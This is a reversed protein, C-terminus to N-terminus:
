DKEMFERIKREEWDKGLLPNYGYAEMGHMILGFGWGLVPFIIWPFSTTRYNLYALFPIVIIYSILNAYFGKMKEVKEKAKLYRKDEIYNEQTQMVSIQKTLMPLKVIFSGVTKNIDVKRDTVLQYRQQINSLGVGSSKKLVEKTQLNNEVVLHGNEEYIKITLPNKSNVVNHKVANELLLQLALPVVKAEPNSAKDPISFVISDEFRMKLLSVYTKAFQLEEDVSILEKNKQELVYRYVKSLATTFDQAADPNEDILSTLVNLSNFLFHPDLQNKLADFQASATGAIIKQETVKEKQSKQYFYVAHFFISIVLTIIISTFYFTGNNLEQTYFENFGEGEIAMEQFMRIFVISVMTLLVSGISGILMRYKGYKKWEINDLYDFFYSNVFTLVISYMQYYGFAILLNKDFNITQGSLMQYVMFVTMLLVGIIFGVGITKKIKSM